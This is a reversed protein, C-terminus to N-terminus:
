GGTTGGGGTGGGIGGRSVTGAGVKPTGKAPAGIGTRGNADNYRVKQGGGPVRSGPPYSHHGSGMWLFFMGGHGDGDDDCNDEPVVEDRENICAYTVDENVAQDSPESFCGAVLMAPAGAAFLLALRRVIPNDGTLSGRRQHAM